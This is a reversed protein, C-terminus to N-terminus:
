TPKELSEQCPRPSVSLAAVNPVVGIREPFVVVLGDGILEQDLALLHM